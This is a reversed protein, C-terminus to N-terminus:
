RNLIVSLFEGDFDNGWGNLENASSFLVKTYDPLAIGNQTLVREAKEIIGFSEQGDGIVTGEYVMAMEFPKNLMYNLEDSPDDEIGDTIGDYLEKLVSFESKSLTEGFEEASYEPYQLLVDPIVSSFMDPWDAWNMSTAQWMKRSIISWDRDPYKNILYAEVCMIVYAMRGNMSVASLKNNM